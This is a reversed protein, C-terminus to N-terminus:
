VFVILTKGDINLFFKLGPTEFEFQSIPRMLSIRPKAPWMFVNKPSRPGCWVLLLTIKIVITLKQALLAEFHYFTVSFNYKKGL